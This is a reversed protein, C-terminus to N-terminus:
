NANLSDRVVDIFTENKPYIGEGKMLCSCALVPVRSLAKVARVVEDSKQGPLFYDIVVLDFNECRSKMAMHLGAAATEAVTFEVDPFAAQLVAAYTLSDEILLVRKM